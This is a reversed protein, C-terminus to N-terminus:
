FSLRYLLSVNRGPEPMIEKVRSLHDRYTRDAVNDVRLTLTHLRGGTFRRVGVAIDGTVCGPTPTEFDGVREQAATLQVGVVAHWAAREYRVAIRGRLPPILPPYPSPPYFTTDAPTIVPISDRTSTFTALVHSVSGELALRTTLWVSLSAETGVFRADENTYQFRPTGGQTGLEARGLSSPFIYDALHNVFVATEGQIRAAAMRVFLDAGIGSEARLAPNGVNYTNAALHPGNSYLEDFEPTRFARALSAGVTVGPAVSYLAGVSGAFSGFDRPGVPVQEGGATVFATTDRPVYRAFEYRLGFQGRLRGRGVEEVAFAAAHIDYTSPTRLSGGTHVDRYQGRLGMGGRVFVGWADHLAVADVSALEQSFLTGISGSAHLETHYYDTFQGALRLRSFAHGEQHREAEGRVTHRRM